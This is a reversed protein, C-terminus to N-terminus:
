VPTTLQLFCLSNESCRHAPACSKSEAVPPTTPSPPRCVSKLHLREGRKNWLPEGSLDGIKDRGEAALKGCRRHAADKGSKGRVTASVLAEASILYDDTYSVCRSLATKEVYGAREIRRGVARGQGESVVGIALLDLASFWPRLVISRRFQIVVYYWSYPSLCLVTCWALNCVSSGCRLGKFCGAKPVM